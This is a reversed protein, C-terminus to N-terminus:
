PETSHPSKYTTTVPCVACVSLSVACVGLCVSLCVSLRVHCVSVYVTLPLCLRIYLRVSLCSPRLSLCVSLCVSLYVSCKSCVSLVSLYVSPSIALVPLCVSPYISLAPVSFRVSPRVSLRLCFDGHMYVCVCACVCVLLSVPPRIFRLLCVFSASWNSLSLSLFRPVRINFPCLLRRSCGNVTCLCVRFLYIIRGTGSCLVFCM